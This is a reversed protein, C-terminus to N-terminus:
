VVEYDNFDVDEKNCKVYIYGELCSNGSLDPDIKWYDRGKKIYSKYENSTKSLLLKHNNM